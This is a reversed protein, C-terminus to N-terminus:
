ARHRRRLLVGGLGLLSLSAPEPVYTFTLDDLSYNGFPAGPPAMVEVEIRDVNSLM